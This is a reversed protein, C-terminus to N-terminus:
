CVSQGKVLKLDVAVRATVVPPGENLLAEERSRWFETVTGGNIDRYTIGRWAAGGVLARVVALAGARSYAARPHQGRFSIRYEYCYVGKRCSM